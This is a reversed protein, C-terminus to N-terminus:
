NAAPDVKLEAVLASWGAAPVDLAGATRAKTDRIGVRAGLNVEVCDAKDPSRSSKFWTGLERRITM